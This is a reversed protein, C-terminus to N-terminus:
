VSSDEQGWILWGVGLAVLYILLMAVLTSVLDPM